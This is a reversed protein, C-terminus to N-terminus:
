KLNIHVMSMVRKTYLASIHKKELPTCPINIPFRTPSPRVKNIGLCPFLYYAEQQASRAVDM